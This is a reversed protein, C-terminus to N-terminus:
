PRRQAQEMAARMGRIKKMIRDSEEATMPPAPPARAERRWSPQVRDYAAHLSTQLDLPLHRAYQMMGTRREAEDLGAYHQVLAGLGAKLETAPLFFQDPRMLLPALRAHLKDGSAFVQCFPLYHLYQVDIPNTPRDPVLANDRALEYLLDCSVVFSTYPLFAPLAPRGAAVWRAKILRRYKEPVGYADMAFCLTRWIGISGGLLLDVMRKAEALSAVRRAPRPKESEPRSAADLGALGQRWLRALEHEADSFEKDSWRRLDQDERSEDFFIGHHGDADTVTQGGGVAPRGRMEVPHGAFEGMILDVDRVNPYSMFGKIKKALSALFPAPDRGDRWEKKLNGLAEAMIVPTIVNRFFHHMWKAEEDTLMQLASKDPILSLEM